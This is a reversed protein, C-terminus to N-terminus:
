RHFAEEGTTDERGNMTGLTDGEEKGGFLSLGGRGARSNFCERKQSGKYIVVTEKLRGKKV